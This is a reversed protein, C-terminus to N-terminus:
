GSARTAGMGGDIGIVQGTIWSNEDSLLWAIASSIDDPTGIRGLPHMKKSHELARESKTIREALPTDVLGPGICNCRINRNAYTAATSRMLGEVGAKAASIAEHNSLGIRAAVTSILVISGGSKMNQTAAKVCSFATTLNTHITDIWDQESTMHAPKLLISGALCVMGTIPTNSSCEKVLNCLPEIERADGTICNAKLDKHHEANRSIVTVKQEDNNLKKILSRGIGGGGGIIVTHHKEM